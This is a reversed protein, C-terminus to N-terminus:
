SGAQAENKAVSVQAARLLRENLLYGTRVEEIIEGDASEPTEVLTVAEHLNPDFKEGVTKIRKVGHDELVKHFEKQIMKIGDLVATKDEAKEMAAFAMDFNDMIPFLKSIIDENAFRINDFKEKELRRRTNEYEAHVKLYRNHYDDREAAKRSIEEWEEPSIDSLGKEKNEKEKKEKM